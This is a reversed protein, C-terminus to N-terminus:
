RIPIANAFNCHLTLLLFMFFISFASTSFQLSSNSFSKKTRKTSSKEWLKFRKKAKFSGFIDRKTFFLNRSISYSVASSFCIENENGKEKQQNVDFLKSSNCTQLRKTIRSENVQINRRQMQSTLNDSSSTATHLQRAHSACVGMEQESEGYDSDNSKLSIPLFLKKRLIEAQFRVYTVGDTVLGRLSRKSTPRTGSKLAFQCDKTQSLPYKDALSLNPKVFFHSM